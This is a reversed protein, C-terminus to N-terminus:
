TTVILNKKQLSQIDFLHFGEVTKLNANAKLFLGCGYHYQM